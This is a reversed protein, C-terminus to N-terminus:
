ACTIFSYNPASERLLGNSRSPNRIQKRIDYFDAVLVKGWSSLQM